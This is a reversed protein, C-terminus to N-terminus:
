CDDRHKRMGRRQLAREGHKECVEQRWVDNEKNWDEVVDEWVQTIPLDAIDWAWESSGKGVKPQEELASLALSIERDISRVLLISCQDPYLGIVDANCIRISNRHNVAM